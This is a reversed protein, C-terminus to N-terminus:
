RFQALSPLCNQPIKINFIPKNALKESRYESRFGGLMKSSNWLWIFIYVRYLCITIILQQICLELAM